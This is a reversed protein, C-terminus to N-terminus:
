VTRILAKGEKVARVKNQVNALSLYRANVFLTIRADTNNTTPNPQIKNALAPYLYRV